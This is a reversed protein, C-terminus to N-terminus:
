GRYSPLRHTVQTHGTKTLFEVIEEIRDDLPRDGFSDEPLDGELSSTSAQVWSSRDGIGRESLVCYVGDKAAVCVDHWFSYEVIERNIQIQVEDAVDEGYTIQITRGALGLKHGMDAITHSIDEIKPSSTTQPSWGLNIGSTPEIKVRYGGDDYNVLFTFDPQKHDM